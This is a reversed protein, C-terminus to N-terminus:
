SYWPGGSPPAGEQLVPVWTRPDQPKFGKTRRRHRRASPSLLSDIPKPELDWGRALTYPYGRAVGHDPRAPDSCSQTGFPLPSGSSHSGPVRAGVHRSSSGRPWGDPGITRRCPAPRHGHYFHRQVAKSAPMTVARIPPPTLLGGPLPGQGPSPSWRSLVQPRTSPGARVNGSLLRHVHVWSWQRRHMPGRHAFGKVPSKSAVPTPRPRGGAWHSFLM